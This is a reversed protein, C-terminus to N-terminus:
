LNILLWLVLEMKEGRSELVEFARHFSLSLALSMKNRHFIAHFRSGEFALSLAMEWIGGDSENHGRQLVSSSEMEWRNKLQMKALTAHHDEKQGKSEV